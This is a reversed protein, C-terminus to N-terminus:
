YINFSIPLHFYSTVAKGGIKAPTWAPMLKIIRIAEQDCEPCGPIGKSVKINSIIGTESVIFTLYCKGSIADENAIEPYKLNKTLFNKLEPFTAEEDVYIAITDKERKKPENESEVKYHEEIDYTILPENDEKKQIYFIEEVDSPPSYIKHNPKFQNIEVCKLNEDFITCSFIIVTDKEFSYIPSICDTCSLNTTPEWIYTQGKKHVSNGNLIIKGKTSSYVSIPLNKKCQGFSVTDICSFTITIFLIIIKKTRM